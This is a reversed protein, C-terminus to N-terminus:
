FPNCLLIVAVMGLGLGIWQRKSLREKFILTAALTTLMLGGGNVIPFMVSSDLVGSLFLNLRNNVAVTIGSVVMIVLPLFTIISRRNEVANEEKRTKFAYIGTFVCSIFLSVILFEGLEGSYATSQHWKQLVGIMGTMLFVIGCYVMWRVSKKSTDKKLDSALCMCILMLAIGCIQVASVNENWIVAGSLTPIITSLSAIVATYSWPGIKMAKLSFVRQVATVAGFLLALFLTFASIKFHGNWFILVLVSVFGTVTNYIHNTHEGQNYHSIYYKSGIGGLLAVSMSVALLIYNNM